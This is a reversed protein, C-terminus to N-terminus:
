SLEGNLGSGPRGVDVIGNFLTLRGVDPEQGSNEPRAYPRRFHASVSASPNLM